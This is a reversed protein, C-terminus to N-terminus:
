QQLVLKQTKVAGAARLRCLYIGSPNNGSEWTRTYEGPQQRGPEYRVVRRGQLDFIEMVIDAERALQWSITVTGNFPNPYAPLLRFIEPSAAADDRVLTGNDISFYRSGIGDANGADDTVVAFITHVGDAYGTTNLNMYFAAGNSNTYGPFLAALDARYINYVPHGITVGDVYMSITSGDTPITNPQPTLVWGWVYFNDGSAIGGPSPTDLNGFPKVASANDCTITKTGLIVSHGGTDTVIATLTYSGNGGNPLVNTLLTFQWGARTNDPYYPYAAAVDPRAGEVLFADGLFIQGSGEGSVPNRFIEVSAVGQDDLAWGTVPIVGRVTSGAVPTEFSGFPPDDAFLATSFSLLLAAAPGTLFSARKAM